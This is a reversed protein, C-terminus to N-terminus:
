SLFFCIQEGKWHVVVSRPQISILFFCQQELWGTEVVFRQPLVNRMNRMVNHSSNQCRLERGKEMFMFVVHYM